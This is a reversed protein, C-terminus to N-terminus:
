LRVSLRGERSSIMPSSQLRRRGRWPPTATPRVGGGLVLPDWGFNPGRSEQPLSSLQYRSRGWRPRCHGWLKDTVEGPSPHGSGNGWWRVENKEQAPKTGLVLSRM